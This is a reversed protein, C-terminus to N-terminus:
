QVLNFNQEWEGEVELAKSMLTNLMRQVKDVGIKQILETLARISDEETVQSQVYSSLRASDQYLVAKDPVKSIPIIGGKPKNM